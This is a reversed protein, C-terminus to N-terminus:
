PRDPGSPRRSRIPRGIKPSTARRVDDLRATLRKGRVTTGTLGQMAKSSDEPRVEIIAFSDRLDIRGIDGPQLGVANVLAGVLDGARVNDKKGVDARIRTWTAPEPAPKQDWSGMIAAAAVEVPDFEDLLPELTALIGMHM